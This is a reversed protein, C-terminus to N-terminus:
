QDVKKLIGFFDRAREVMEANQAGTFGHGAGPVIVLTSACGAQELADHLLHSELPIVVPDQDGHCILFPPLPGPQAFAGPHIYNIPNAWAVLGPHEQIPAGVLLSEPSDPANHDELGPLDNMRLFDTPGYWDCVAQVASSISFDAAEVHDGHHDWEKFNATLGLLAVLHGGASPGWAGFRDPDLNYEQAHARLWRVAAKVDRIQAPFIAEQSLRYGVSAVAFGAPLLELAEDCDSKSGMRWAGGHVFIILPQPAPAQEHLYLDLTLPRGTTRAYTLDPLFQIDPPLSM